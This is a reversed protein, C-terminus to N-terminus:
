RVGQCKNIMRNLQRYDAGTQPNVAQYSEWECREYDATRTVTLPPLCGSLVVALIIVLKM